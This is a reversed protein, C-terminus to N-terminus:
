SAQDRHTMRDAGRPNSLDPLDDHLQSLFRADTLVLACSFTKSVHHADSRDAVHMYEFTLTQSTVSHLLAISM